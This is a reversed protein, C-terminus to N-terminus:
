IMLFLDKVLILTYSYLDMKLHQKDPYLLHLILLSGAVDDIRVQSRLVEYGTQLGLILEHRTIRQFQASFGYSLKKKTGYPNNTYNGESSVDSAIIFSSETASEGGFSSLGSNFHVSFETSQGYATSFFIFPLLLVGLKRM